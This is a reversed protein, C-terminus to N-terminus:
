DQSQYVKKKWTVKFTYRDIVEAKDMDELYNKISGAQVQPNQIMEFFFDADEATLEREKKLWDYKSDSFDVNPTQWYVGERLHITYVLNDDSVEIKYALESVWKDPDVPDRNAFANHVYTQLEAVDAGNETLWNYGKPTSGMYRRLTGGEQADAPILPETRPGLLNGLERLAAAYKDNSPTSASTHGSVAVGKELQRLIKTNNESIAEIKRSMESIKKEANNTQTVNFVTLLALVVLSIILAITAKFTRPM